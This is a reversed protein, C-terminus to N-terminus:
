FEAIIEATDLNIVYRDIASIKFQTMPSDDSEAFFDIHSLSASEILLSDESCICALMQLFSLKTFFSYDGNGCRKKECEALSLIEPLITKIHM